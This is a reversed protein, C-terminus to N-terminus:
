ADSDDATPHGPLNGNRLMERHRQAAISVLWGTVCKREFCRRIVLVNRYHVRVREDPICSGFGHDAGICRVTDGFNGIGLIFDLAFSSYLAPCILIVGVPLLMPISVAAEFEVLTFGLVWLAIGSRQCHSRSREGISPVSASM